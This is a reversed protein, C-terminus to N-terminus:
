AEDAPPEALLQELGTIVGEVVEPTIVEDAALNFLCAKLQERLAAVKTSKSRHLVTLVRELEVPDSIAIHITGNSATVQAM